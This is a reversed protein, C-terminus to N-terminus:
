PSPIPVNPACHDAPVASWVLERDADNMVLCLGNATPGVSFEFVIRYRVDVQQSRLENIRRLLSLFRLKSQGEAADDETEDAPASSSSSTSGLMNLHRRVLSFLKNESEVAEADVASEEPISGRSAPLSGLLQSLAANVVSCTVM